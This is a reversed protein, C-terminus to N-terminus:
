QMHVIYGLFTAKGDLLTTLGNIVHHWSGTVLGQQRELAQTSALPPVYPPTNVNSVNRLRAIHPELLNTNGIRSPRNM